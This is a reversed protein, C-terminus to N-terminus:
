PNCTVIIHPTGAAAGAFHQKAFDGFDAGVDTENLVNYGGPCTEHAQEKCDAMGDPCELYNICPMPPSCASLLMCVIAFLKPFRM